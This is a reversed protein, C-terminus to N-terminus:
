FNLTNADLYVIAMANPASRSITPLSECSVILEMLVYISDNKGSSLAYDVAQKKDIADINEEVEEGAADDIGKGTELIDEATPKIKSKM